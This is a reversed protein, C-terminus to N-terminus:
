KLLLLTVSTQCVLVRRSPRRFSFKCFRPTYSLIVTHFLELDNFIRGEILLVCLVQKQRKLQMQRREASARGLRSEAVLVQGIKQAFDFLLVALDKEGDRAAFRDSKHRALYKEALAVVRKQYIRWLASKDGVEDDCITHATLAHALRQEGGRFLKKDRVAAVAELQGDKRGVLGCVTKIDRLAKLRARM